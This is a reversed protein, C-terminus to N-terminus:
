NVIFAAGAGGAFLDQMHDELMGHGIKTEQFHNTEELHYVKAAGALQQESKTLLGDNEEPVYVTVQIQGGLCVGMCINDIYFQGLNSNQCYHWGDEYGSVTVTEEELEGNEILALQWETALLQNAIECRLIRALEDDKKKVTEIENIITTKTSNVFTSIAGLYDGTTSDKVVTATFKIANAFFGLVNSITSKINEKRADERQRMLTETYCKTFHDEDGTGPFYWSSMMTTISLQEMSGWFVAHPIQPLNAPQNLNNIVDSNPLMESFISEHDKLEDIWRQFAGVLNCDEWDDGSKIDNVGDIIRQAKTLGDTFGTSTIAFGLGQSGQNPVGDLIIAGLTNNGTAMQRLVLGGFDHGIGLINDYNGINSELTSGAVVVGAGPNYVSNPLGQLSIINFLDYGNNVFHNPTNGWGLSTTSLGDLWMTNRTQSYSINLMLLLVVITLLICKNKKM